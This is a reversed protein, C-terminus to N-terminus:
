KKRSISKLYSKFASRKSDAIQESVEEDRKEGIKEDYDAKRREYDTNLEDNTISIMIRAMIVEMYISNLEIISHASSLNAGIAVNNWGINSLFDYLQKLKVNDPDNESNLGLLGRIQYFDDYTKEKMVQTNIKIVCDSVDRSADTEEYSIWGIDKLNKFISNNNLKVGQGDKSYVRVQVNAGRFSATLNAANTLVLDGIVLTRSFDDRLAREMTSRINDKGQSGDYKMNNMKAKVTAYQTNYDTDVAYNFKALDMSKTTPKSALRGATEYWGVSDTMSQTDANSAINGNTSVFADEV